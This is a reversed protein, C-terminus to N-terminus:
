QKPNHWFGFPFSARSTSHARLAILAIFASHQVRLWWLLYIVYNCYTEFKLCEVNLMSRQTTQNQFPINLNWHPVVVIWCKPYMHTFFCHNYLPVIREPTEVYINSVDVSDDGYEFRINHPKFGWLLLVVRWNSVSIVINVRSIWFPFHINNRMLNKCSNRFAFM